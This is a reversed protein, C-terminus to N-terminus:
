LLQPLLPQSPILVIGLEGKVLPFCCPLIPFLGSKTVCLSKIQIGRKGNIQRTVKSLNRVRESDPTRM